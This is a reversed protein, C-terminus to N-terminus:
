KAAGLEIFNCVATFGSEEEFEGKAAELPQEDGLYEGKPISWAGMDKKTWVPGGPHVLFVELGGDQWRYM